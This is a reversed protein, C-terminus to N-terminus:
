FLLRELPLSNRQYTNFETFRQFDAKQEHLCKHLVQLTHFATLPRPGDRHSDAGVPLSPPKEWSAFYAVM